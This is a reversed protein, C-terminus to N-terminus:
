RFKDQETQPEAQKKKSGIGSSQLRKMESDLTARFDMFEPDALFDVTTWGCSRVFGCYIHHLTDPSYTSPEM